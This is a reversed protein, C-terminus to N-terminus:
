KDVLIVEYWFYKGTEGVYYSNLATCNVYAREARQEAIWGYSMHVVKKRRMNKPKRGGAFKPRMRGMRLLKVRAILYGQKARYGLSRARDIRTPREVRIISPGDAWAIMRDKWIKGLSERPKKWAERVYQYMGM